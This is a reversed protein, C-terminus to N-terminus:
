LTRELNSVFGYILGMVGAAYLEDGATELIIQPLSETAHGSVVMGHRTLDYTTLHMPCAGLIQLDPKYTGQLPGGMHTCITTFCVIDNDPGVGAGAVAGLKILLCNVDPYPYQLLVPEGRRLESIRGIRRRPYEALKAQPGPGQALLRHGPLSALSVIAVSKAATFLFDRRSLARLACAGAPTPTPFDPTPNM